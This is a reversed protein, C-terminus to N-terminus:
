NKRRDKKKAGTELAHSQKTYSFAQVWDNLAFVVDVAVGTFIM